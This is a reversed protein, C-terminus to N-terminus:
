RHKKYLITESQPGSTGPGDWRVTLNFVSREPRAANRLYTISINYLGQGSGDIDIGRSCGPRVVVNRDNLCFPSSPTFINSSADSVRLLEVQSSLFQLAESHEQAVRAARLGRSATTYAISFATSLVVLVVLVEIITDGAQKRISSM